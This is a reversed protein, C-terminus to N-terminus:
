KHDTSFRYTGSGLEQTLSDNKTSLSVPTGDQKVTDTAAAPLFVTATSNAPVTVLFDRHGDPNSTWDTKITGYASDYEAHVHTLGPAIHPHIVVHHFGPDAPDADIGAVSRYVWAMVSGFAYHNYSNMAPDGTDGNWREWWTTAGKDVMYGWSPYTSTLLLDYAIDTRGHEQLVSLLFPTGLFGTTLHTQHAKIDRVLRDTM